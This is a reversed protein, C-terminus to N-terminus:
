DISLTDISITDISITDISLTDISITDISITDISITDISITDISIIKYFYDEVSNGIRFFRYILIFRWYDVNNIGSADECRM